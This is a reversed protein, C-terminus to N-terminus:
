LLYQNLAKIVRGGEQIAKLFNSTDRGPQPAVEHLVVINYEGQPNIQPRMFLAEYTQGSRTYSLRGTEGTKFIKELARSVKVGDEAAMLDFITKNKDVLIQGQHNIHYARYV